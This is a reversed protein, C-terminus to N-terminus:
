QKRFLGILSVGLPLNFHDLWARELAYPWYLLANVLPRSTSTDSHAEDRGLLKRALRALVVAPFLLCNTYSLRLTQFSTSEALSRLARPTYRRLHHLARDHGGFLFPHAPVTALFIGHKKLVRHIERAVGAQDEIHELVDSCVVFDFSNDPYPLSTAPALTLRSLGRQRCFEIAQPNQDIGHMEYDRGLFEMIIGTGCGVDLGKTSVEGGGPPLARALWRRLLMRKAVFWWHDGEVQFMLQYEPQEM